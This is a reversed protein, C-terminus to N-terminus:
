MAMARFLITDTPQSVAWAGSRTEAPRKLGVRFCWSKVDRYKELRCRHVMSMGARWSDVGLSSVHFKANGGRFGASSRMESRSLRHTLDRSKGGRGKGNGGGVEEDQHGNGMEVM